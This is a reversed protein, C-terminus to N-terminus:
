MLSNLRSPGTQLAQSLMVMGENDLSNRSLNLMKLDSYGSCLASSLAAMSAVSLSCSDLSCVCLYVFMYM